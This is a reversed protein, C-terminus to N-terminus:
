KLNRSIGSNLRPILVGVGEGEFVGEKNNKGLGRCIPWAGTKLINRVYTYKKHGRGGLFQHVEMNNVNKMENKLKLILGM